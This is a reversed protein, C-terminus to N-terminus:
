LRNPPDILDLSTRLRFPLFLDSFFNGDWEFLLLWYDCPHISVQCIASKVDRKMMAAGNGAQAELRVADNLTEYTIKGNGNWDGDGYGLHLLFVAVIVNFKTITMAPVYWQNTRFSVGFPFCVSNYELVLIMTLFVVM